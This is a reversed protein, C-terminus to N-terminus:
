AFAQAELFAPEAANSVNFFDGAFGGGSSIM